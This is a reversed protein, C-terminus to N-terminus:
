PLLEEFGEIRYGGWQCCPEKWPDITIDTPLGLTPHYKVDISVPKKWIWDNALSFLGDITFAKSVVPYDPAWSAGLADVVSVVENNKVEIILPMRDYDDASELFGWISLSMRYHTIHQSEWRAQNQELERAESAVETNPIVVTILLIIATVIVGVIGIAKLDDRAKPQTEISKQPQIM